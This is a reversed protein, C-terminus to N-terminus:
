SEVNSRSSEVNSWMAKSQEARWMAGENTSTVVGDVEDNVDDDMDDNVDGNSTQVRMRKIFNLELAM